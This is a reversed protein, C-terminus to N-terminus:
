RKSFLEDEVEHVTAVTPIRKLRRRSGDEVFQPSVVSIPAGRLISLVGALARLVYYIHMEMVVPEVFSYELFGTNTYM